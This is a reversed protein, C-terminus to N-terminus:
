TVRARGYSMRISCRGELGPAVPEFGTPRAVVEGQMKLVKRERWTPTFECIEPEPLVRTVHLASDAGAMAAMLETQEAAELMPVDGWADTMADRLDEAVLHAYTGTTTTVSAHRLIRQVRHADVGARLLVTAASHRLDHFRMPRPIARPWLRMGCTPCDRPTNDAHRWTTVPRKKAKCCRCVHDYGEVIGAQSLATRLSKQPDSHHTRMSGDAAPFLYAGRTRLGTVVYPLLPPPIPL